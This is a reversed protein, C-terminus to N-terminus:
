KKSVSQNITHGILYGAVAGVAAGTLIWVWNGGGSFLGIVIGMLGFFIAMTLAPNRKTKPTGPTHAQTHHHHPKRKHKSQPM